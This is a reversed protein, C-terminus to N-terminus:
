RGVLPSADTKSWWGAGYGACECVVCIVCVVCVRCVGCV